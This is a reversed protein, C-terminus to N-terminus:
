TSRIRAIETRLDALEKQAAGLIQALGENKESLRRLEGTFDRVASLSDLAMHENQRTLTINEDILRSRAAKEEALQQGPVVRGSVGLWGSVAVVAVLIGVIGVRDWGAFFEPTM